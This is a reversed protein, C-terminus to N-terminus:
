KGLYFGTDGYHKWQKRDYAISNVVVARKFPRYRIRWKQKQSVKSWM